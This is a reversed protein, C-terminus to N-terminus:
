VLIYVNGSVKDIWPSRERINMDSFLIRAEILTLKEQNEGNKILLYKPEDMVFKAMSSALLWEPSSSDSDLSTPISNKKKKRRTKKNHFVPKPNALIARPIAGTEKTNDINKKSQDSMEKLEQGSM